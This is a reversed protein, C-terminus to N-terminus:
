YNRKEINYTRVISKYCVHIYGERSLLYYPYRKQLNNENKQSYKRMYYVVDCIILVFQCM